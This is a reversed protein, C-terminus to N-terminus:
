PKPLFQRCGFRRHPGPNIYHGAADLSHWRALTDATAPHGESIRQNCASQMGGALDDDDALAHRGCIFCRPRYFVYWLYQLYIQRYIGCHRELIASKPCTPFFSTRLLFL